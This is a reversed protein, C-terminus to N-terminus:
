INEKHKQMESDIEREMQPHAEQHYRRGLSEALMEITPYFTDPLMIDEGDHVLTDIKRFYYLTTDIDAANPVFMRIKLEDGDKYTEFLPVNQAYINSQRRLLEWTAVLAKKGYYDLYLVRACDAPAVAEFLPATFALPVREVYNQFYGYKRITSHGINALFRRLAQTLYLERDKQSYVKGDLLTLTTILAGDPSRPDGLRYALNVSLQDLIPTAM